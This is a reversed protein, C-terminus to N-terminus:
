LQKKLPLLIEFSDYSVIWSHCTATLLVNEDIISVFANQQFDNQCPLLWGNM